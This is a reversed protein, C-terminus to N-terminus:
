PDSCFYRNNQSMTKQDQNFFNRMLYSFSKTQIPQNEEPAHAKLVTAEKVM